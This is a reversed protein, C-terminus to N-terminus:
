ISYMLASYFLIGARNLQDQHHLTLTTVVAKIETYYLCCVEPWVIHGVRLGVIWKMTDFKLLHNGLELRM